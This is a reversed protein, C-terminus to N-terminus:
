RLRKLVLTTGDANALVIGTTEWGAVGRASLAQALDQDPKVTITQYDWIRPQRIVRVQVPNSTTGPGPEGNVVQVRLPASLNVDSLDVPVAEGRGRNQV